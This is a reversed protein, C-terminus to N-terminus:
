LRVAGGAPGAGAAGRGGRTDCDAAARPLTPACRPAPKLIAGVLMASGCRRCAPLVCPRLLFVPPLRRRVQAAGYQMVRADLDAGRGRDRKELMGPALERCAPPAAPLPAPAAAPSPPQKRQRAARCHRSPRRLMLPTQLFCRLAPLWPPACRFLGILSRASSSVEKNRFKKYATLDQKSPPLCVSCDPPPRLVAHQAGPLGPQASGAAAAGQSAWELRRRGVLGWVVACGARQLVRRKGGMGQGAGAGTGARAQLLEPTMVLPCRTCLERVTKIGITM